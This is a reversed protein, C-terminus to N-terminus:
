LKNRKIINLKSSHVTRGHHDFYIKVLFGAQSFGLENTVTLDLTLFVDKLVVM